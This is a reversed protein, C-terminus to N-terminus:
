LYWSQFFLDAAREHLHIGVEGNESEAAEGPLHVILERLLLQEDLERVIRATAERRRNLNTVEENLDHVSTALEAATLASLDAITRSGVRAM